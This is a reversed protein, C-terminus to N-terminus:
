NVVCWWAGVVARARRVRTLRTHVSGLAYMWICVCVCMERADVRGLVCVCVCVCVCLVCVCCVVCVCLCVNYMSDCRVHVTNVRHQCPRPIRSSSRPRVRPGQHRLRDQDNRRVNHGSSGARPQPWSDQRRVEDECRAARVEPPLHRRQAGPVAM